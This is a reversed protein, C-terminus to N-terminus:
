SSPFFILTQLALLCCGGFVRIVETRVKLVYDSEDTKGSYSFSVNRFEVCGELKQPQLHGDAPLNPKRDLIEFSKGAAGIAARVKPYSTMVSQFLSSQSHSGSASNRSLSEIGDKNRVEVASSFQLEYLIFSVLDGSSVGGRTM